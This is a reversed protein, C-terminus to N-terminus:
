SQHPSRPQFQSAEPDEEYDDMEHIHGSELESRSKCELELQLTSSRHISQTAAVFEIQFDLIPIIVLKGEAV